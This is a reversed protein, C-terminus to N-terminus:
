EGDRWWLLIVLFVFFGVIVAAVLAYVLLDLTRAAIPAAIM